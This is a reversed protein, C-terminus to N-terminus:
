NFLYLWFASKAPISETSSDIKKMEVGKSGSSLIYIDSSVKKASILDKIKVKQGSLEFETDSKIESTTQNSLLNWGKTVKLSSVAKSPTLDIEKPELTPSYIYIAGEKNFDIALLNKKSKSWKGGFMQFSLYGQESLTISNLNQKAVIVNWGPYITAKNNQTASQAVFPSTSAVPSPSVSPSPTPSPLPSATKSPSPAPTPTGELTEGGMIKIPLFQGSTITELSAGQPTEDYELLSLKSIELTGTGQILVFFYPDKISDNPQFYKSIQVESGANSLPFSLASESKMGYKLVGFSAQESASKNNEWTYKIELLYTKGRSLELRQALMTYNEKSLQNQITLKQNKFEVTNKSSGSNIVWIRDNLKQSFDANQLIQRTEVDASIFKAIQPSLFLLLALVGLIAAYVSFYKSM